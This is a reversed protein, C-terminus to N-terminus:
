TEKTDRDEPSPLLGVRDQVVRSVAEAVRDPSGAADIQVMYPRDVALFIARARSLLGTEEFVPEAVGKRDEVRALGAGPDLDFLLVLDPPPFGESEHQELLAQWEFGRAGQYAITSLYYRDSLVVAGRELAPAIVERVHDRRQELFWALETEPSVAENGQAMERIRRGAPSGGYPERTTVVDHGAARLAEALLALQTSKGGGDIGEFVILCGNM